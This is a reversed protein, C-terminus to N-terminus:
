PVRRANGAVKEIKIEKKEEKKKILIKSKIEAAIKKLYENEVKKGQWPIALGDDKYRPIIHILVHQLNQGAAQGNAVYINTGQANMAEYAAKSLMNAIRFIHSTLEDSMMSSIPYHDKPFLLIHGKSAPNIDLVAKVLNDEYVDFSEIKGESVMCFICQRKQLESLEDESLSAMLESVKKEQEEKSLGNIEEEINKLKETLDM